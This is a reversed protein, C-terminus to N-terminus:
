LKKKIDDMPYKLGIINRIEDMIRMNKLSRALTAVESEKKGDLLMQNVASAMYNYGHNARPEAFIEEGESTTLIVKGAHWYNPLYIQGKSGFIYGENRLDNMLSTSIQTIAGNRYKLTIADYEDVGTKGLHAQASVQTITDNIMLESFAIGYIGIDLLAGGAYNLNFLRSDPNYPARRGFDAQLLNITGIKGANVWEVAKLVAPIFYTWLAEMMFVKHKKAVAILHELQRANVTFPKECLVAKNHQLCLLTNAYHLNHPTAVYIIDIDPDSVLKEYSSYAREINYQAAFNNANEQSRSAVAIIKGNTVQKFDDAFKHAIKGTALIGWQINNKEVRFKM